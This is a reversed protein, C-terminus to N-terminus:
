LQWWIWQTKSYILILISKKRKHHKSTKKKELRLGGARRYRRSWQFHDSAFASQGLGGLQSFSVKELSQFHCLLFGNLIQTTTFQLVETCHICSSKKPRSTTNSALLHVQESVCLPYVSIISVSHSTYNLFNVTFCHAWSHGLHFWRSKCGHDLARM